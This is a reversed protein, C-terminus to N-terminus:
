STVGKTHVDSISNGNAWLENMDAEFLVCSGNKATMSGISM